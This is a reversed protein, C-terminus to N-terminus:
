NSITIIRSKIILRNLQKTKKITVSLHWIIEFSVMQIMYKLDLNVLINQDPTGKLTIETKQFYIQMWENLRQNEMLGKEVQKLGLMEQAGVCCHFIATKEYCKISRIQFSYCYFCDGEKLLKLFKERKVPSGLLLLLYINNLLLYIFQYNKFINIKRNM